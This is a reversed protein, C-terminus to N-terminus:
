FAIISSINRWFQDVNCLWEISRLNRCEALLWPAFNPDIVVNQGGVQLFFSSHGIFPVGMQGNTV